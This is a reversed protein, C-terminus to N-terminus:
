RTQATGRTADAVPLPATNAALGSRRMADLTLANHNAEVFAHPFMCTGLQALWRWQRDYGFFDALTSGPQNATLKKAVDKIFIAADRTDVRWQVPKDGSMLSDVPAEELRSAYKTWWPALADCVAEARERDPRSRFWVGGLDPAPLAHGESAANVAAPLNGWGHEDIGDSLNNSVTARDGLAQTLQRWAVAYNLLQGEFSAHLWNTDFTEKVSEATASAAIVHDQASVVLAAFQEPPMEEFSRYPFSAPQNDRKFWFLQEVAEAVDRVTLLTDGRPAVLSPNLVHGDFALFAAKTEDKNLLLESYAFREQHTM